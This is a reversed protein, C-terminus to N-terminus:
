PVYAFAGIEWGSGVSSQDVTLFPWTGSTPSLANKFQDVLSAGADIAPSAPTLRYDGAAANAFRPDQEKSKADGSQNQWVTLTYDAVKWFYKATGTGGVADYYLNNSLVPNVTVGSAVYILHKTLGNDSYSINNKVETAINGAVPDSNVMIGINASNVVTNGYIKNGPGNVEIAVDSGPAGPKTNDIINYSVETLGFFGDIPRGHMGSFHNYRVTGQNYDTNSSNVDGKILIGANTEGSNGCSLFNNNQILFNHSHLNANDRVELARRVRLFTNNIFSANDGEIIAGAGAIDSFTNGDVLMDDTKRDDSVWIGYTSSYRLISNRITFHSGKDAAILFRAAMELDLGDFSIFSRGSAGGWLTAAFPRIPTEYLQGNNNPNSGDSAHTYLTGQDWYFSGATAEVAAVSSVEALLVGDELVSNNPDISLGKSYTHPYNTISWGSNALVGAGTIRPASGEGYAGFLIPMSASGASPVDLEERWTEGRKLLIEDGPSFSSANIKAITQWAKIQSRGDNNDNGASADVYYTNNAPATIPSGGTPPAASAMVTVSATASAGTDYMSRAAITISPVAPASLPATYTGTSSIKGVSSNGGENGNVFWSVTQNTTGKVTATFQQVQSPGLSAVLPSVSVTVPAAAPVVVVTAGGTKTPDTRSIVAVAIIASSTVQQPATYLGSRSITGSASNGGLVGNVLWTLDANARAFAPATFQLSNGAHLAAKQPSISLSAAGPSRNPSSRTSDLSEKSATGCGYLLSLALLLALCNMSPWPTKPMRM